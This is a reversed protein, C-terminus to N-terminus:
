QTTQYNFYTQMVNLKRIKSQMYITFWKQEKETFLDTGYQISNIREIYENLTIKNKRYKNQLKEIEKDCEEDTM